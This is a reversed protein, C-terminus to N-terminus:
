GYIQSRIGESHFRHFDDDLTIKFNRNQGEDQNKVFHVVCRGCWHRNEMACAKM